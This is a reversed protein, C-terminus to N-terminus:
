KYNTVSTHQQKFFNQIYKRIKSSAIKQQITLLAKKAQGPAYYVTEPYEVIDATELGENDTPERDETSLRENEFHSKSSIDNNRNLINGRADDKIIDKTEAINQFKVSAKLEEISQNLGRLEKTLKESDGETESPAIDIPKGFVDTIFSEAIQANEELKTRLPENKGVYLESFRQISGALVCFLGM